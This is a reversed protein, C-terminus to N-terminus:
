NQFDTLIEFGNRSHFKPGLSLILKSEMLELSDLSIGEKQFMYAFNKISEM